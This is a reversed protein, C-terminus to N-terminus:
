TSSKKCRNLPLFFKSDFNQQTQTLYNLIEQKIEIVKEDTPRLSKLEMMSDDLSLFSERKRALELGEMYTQRATGLNGQKLFLLGKQLMGLIRVKKEDSKLAEANALLAKDLDNKQFHIFALDLYAQGDQYGNQFIFDMDKIAQDFQEGEIYASVRQLRAEKDLPDVELIKDFDHIANQPEGLCRYTWGRSLLGVYNSPSINLTESYDRLAEPYRGLQEFAYGRDFFVTHDNEGLKIALTLDSIASQYDGIKIYGAGRRRYHEGTKPDLEIAKTLNRIAETVNGMRSFITARLAYGHPSEPRLQVSEAVLSLSELYNGEELRFAARLLLQDSQDFQSYDFPSAVAGETSVSSRATVAHGQDMGGLRSCLLLLVSLFIFIFRTIKVKHGDSM